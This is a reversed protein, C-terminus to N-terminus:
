NLMVMLVFLLSHTYLHELLIFPCVFDKLLILQQNLFQEIDLGPRYTEYSKLNIPRVSFCLGSGDPLSWALQYILSRNIKFQKFM